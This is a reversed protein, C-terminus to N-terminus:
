GIVGPVSDMRENADLQAKLSSFAEAAKARAEAELKAAISVQVRHRFDREKAEFVSSLGALEAEAYRLEREREALRAEVTELEHDDRPHARM